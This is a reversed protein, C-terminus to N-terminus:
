SFIVKVLYILLLHAPYFVYFFYKSFANNNGSDESNYFLTIVLMSITVVIMFRITTQGLVYGSAIFKDIFMLAECAIFQLIRYNRFVYFLLIIAVGVYSWETFSGAVLCAFLGIAKVPKEKDCDLICLAILGIFLTMIVNWDTLFMKIDFRMAHCLVYAVQTVLALILLRTAYKKKSRTYQYGESVFYMFVPPALFEMYVFFNRWFVPLGFFHFLSMTYAVFHGIAMFVLAITKLSNRNLVRLKDM